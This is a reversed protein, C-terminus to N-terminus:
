SDFKRKMGTGTESHNWTDQLVFLENPYAAVNFKEQYCNNVMIAYFTLKQDSTLTNAKPGYWQDDMKLMFSQDFIRTMEQVLDGKM